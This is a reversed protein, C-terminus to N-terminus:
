INVPIISLSKRLCKLSVDKIDVHDILIHGSIESFRFIAQVLSSKGAGTRGVVGIKEGSNIKFSANKLVMPLNPAYSFSVNSFIIEGKQPWNIGPNKNEKEFLEKELSSYEKIREVSSM